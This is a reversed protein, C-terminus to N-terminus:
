RSPLVSMPDIPKGGRRVEFHLMPKDADSMGLEAIKQGRKVTQGEKVLISRNHAYATIFDDPHKVIVLNGYGRLGNGSYVVRGQEASFVAEGPAGAIAIGKSGGDSFGTIVQGNAPWGWRLNTVLPTAAQDPLSTPASAVVTPDAAPIAPAGAQTSPAVETITENATAPQSMGSAVPRGELPRIQMTSPRSQIPESQALTNSSAPQESKPERVRLVQGVDILNPNEIQNWQSLDRWGVGHELAIGVLTDGRRVRYFGDPVPALDALARGSATRQDAPKAAGVKRSEIPSPAQFQACGALLALSLGLWARIPGHHRRLMADTM